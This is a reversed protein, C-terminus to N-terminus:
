GVVISVILASFGVIFAVLGIYAVWLIIVSLWSGDDIKSM